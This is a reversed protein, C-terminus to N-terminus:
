LGEMIDAALRGCHAGEEVITWHAPTGLREWMEVFQRALLRGFLSGVSVNTFFDGRRGIRARGSAYYGHEPHYLAAAMFDHFSLPARKEIQARLLTALPTMASRPLVVADEGRPM